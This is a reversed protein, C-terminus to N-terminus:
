GAFNAFSSVFSGGLGEVTSYFRHEPTELCLHSSARHGCGTYRL